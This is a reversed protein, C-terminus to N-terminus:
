IETIIGENGSRQREPAAQACGFTMSWKGYIRVSVTYCLVKNSEIGNRGGKVPGNM